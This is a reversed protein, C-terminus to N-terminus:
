ICKIQVTMTLMLNTPSVELLRREWMMLPCRSSIDIYCAIKPDSSKPLCVQLFQSTASYRLLEFISSLKSSKNATLFLQFSISFHSFPSFCAFVSVLFWPIQPKNRFRDRFEETVQSISCFKKTKNQKRLIFHM